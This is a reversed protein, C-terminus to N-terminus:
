ANSYRDNRMPHGYIVAFFGYKDIKVIGELDKNLRSIFMDANM